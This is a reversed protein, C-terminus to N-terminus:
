EPNSRKGPTDASMIGVHNKEPEDGRWLKKFEDSAEHSDPGRVVADPDQTM